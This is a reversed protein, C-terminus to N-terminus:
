AEKAPVSPLGECSEDYEAAAEKEPPTPAAESSPPPDGGGAKAEESREHEVEETRVEEQTEPDVEEVITEEASDRSNESEDPAASKDAEGVNAEEGQRPGGTEETASQFSRPEDVLASEDNEEHENEAKEMKDAQPSQEADDTSPSKPGGATNVRNLMGRMAQGIARRPTPKDGVLAVLSSVSQGSESLSTLRINMLAVDEAMRKKGDDSKLEIKTYEESLRHVIASLVESLVGQPDATNM